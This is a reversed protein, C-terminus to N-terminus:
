DSMYTDMKICKVLAVPMLHPTVMMTKVQRNVCRVFDFDESLILDLNHTCIKKQQVLRVIERRVENESWDSFYRMSGDYLKEYERLSVDSNNRSQFDILILGKQVEKM